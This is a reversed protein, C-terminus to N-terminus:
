WRPKIRPFGPHWRKSPSRRLNSASSKIPGSNWYSRSCHATQASSDGQPAFARSMRALSLAAHYLDFPLHFPCSCQQLPVSLSLLDRTYRGADSDTWSDEESQFLCSDIGGGGEENSSMKMRKTSRFGYGSCDDMNFVEAATANSTAGSVGHITSGLQRKEGQNSALPPPVVEM